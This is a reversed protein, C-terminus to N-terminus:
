IPIVRVMPMEQRRRVATVRAVLRASNAAPQPSSADCRGPPWVGLAGGGGPEVDGSVVLEDDGVVGEVGVSVFGPPLVEVGGGLTGVGAEDPEVVGGVEGGGAEVSEVPPEVAGGEVPSVDAGVGSSEVSSIDVASGDVESSSVVVVM